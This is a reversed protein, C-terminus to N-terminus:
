CFEIKCVLTHVLWDVRVCLRINKCNNVGADYRQTTKGRYGLKARQYNMNLAM